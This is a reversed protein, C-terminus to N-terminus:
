KDMSCNYIHKYVYVFEALAVLRCMVCLSLLCVTRVMISMGGDKCSDRDGECM